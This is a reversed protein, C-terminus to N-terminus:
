KWMVSIVKIFNDKKVWVVKLTNLKIKKYSEIIIGKKVSYDPIGICDEIWLFKIAREYMRKKAHKSYIIEM